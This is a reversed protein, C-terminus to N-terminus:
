RGDGDWDADEPARFVLKKTVYCLDMDSSMVTGNLLVRDQWPLNVFLCAKLEQETAQPHFIIVAEGRGHEAKIHKDCSLRNFYLDDCCPCGFLVPDEIPPRPLSAARAGGSAAIAEIQKRLVAPEPASDAEQGNRAQEKQLMTLSMKNPNSSTTSM